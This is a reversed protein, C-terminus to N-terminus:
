LRHGSGGRSNGSSVKITFEIRSVTESASKVNASGGLSAEIVKISLGGKGSKSSEKTDANTVALSFSVGQGGKVGQSVHHDRETREKAEKMAQDIQVLTESIFDKIEM